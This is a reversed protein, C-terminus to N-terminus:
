KIIEIKSKDRPKADPSENKYGMAITYLVEYGESFKLQSVLDKAEPSRLYQVPYGVVCTGINMSQAALLINQGLWGCDVQGFSNDKQYAVIIVTPAGHFVSKANAAKEPNGKTSFATFGDELAKILEPNQIIRVEWPQKNMASPANVACNIITDLTQESIQEPKYSRISRRSLITEITTNKTEQVNAQQADSQAQPQQCSTLASILIIPLLFLKKM